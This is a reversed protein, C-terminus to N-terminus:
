FLDAHSGTRTLSLLNDKIIYILLWNPKIHCEKHKDYRGKLYHDKYKQPMQIQNALMTIIKKLLEIDYNRKKIRQMDKKYENTFFVELM